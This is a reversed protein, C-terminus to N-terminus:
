IFSIKNSWEYTAQFKLNGGYTQKTMTWGQKTKTFFVGGGHVSLQNQKKHLAM